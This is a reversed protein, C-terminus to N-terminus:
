ATYLLLDCRSHTLFFWDVIIKDM